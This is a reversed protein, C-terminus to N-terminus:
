VTSLVLRRNILSWLLFDHLYETVRKTLLLGKVTALQHLPLSTTSSKRSESGITHNQRAIIIRAHLAHKKRTDFTPLRWTRYNSDQNQLKRKKKGRRIACKRHFYWSFRANGGKGSHSIIRTRLNQLSSFSRSSQNTNSARM